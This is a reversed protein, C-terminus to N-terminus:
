IYLQHEKIFTAVAEPVMSQWETGKNKIYLRIASSSIAKCNEPISLVTVCDPIIPAAHERPIIFVTDQATGNKPNWYALNEQGSFLHWGVTPSEGFTDRLEQMSWTRTADQVLITIPYEPPLIMTLMAIRHEISAAYQKHGHNNIIVFLQDIGTSFAQMIIQQHARTPPDFTGWYVGCTKDTAKIHFSIALSSLAIVYKLNM